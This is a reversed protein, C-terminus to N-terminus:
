RAERSPTTASREATDNDLVTEMGERLSQLWKIHGDWWSSHGSMVIVTRWDDPDADARERKRRMEKNWASLKATCHLEATRVVTIMVPLDERTCLAFKALLEERVVPLAILAKIWKKFQRVGSATIEYPTGRDVKADKALARGEGDMPRVLGRKALRQVAHYSSGRAFQMEAFAEELRKDLQYSSDPRKFLLGLVIENTSM